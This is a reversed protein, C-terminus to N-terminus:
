IPLKHLYDKFFFFVKFFSHISSSILSKQPHILSCMNVELVLLNKNSQDRTMTAEERDDNPINYKKIDEKMKQEELYLLLHFKESYNEWSLPAQLVQSFM